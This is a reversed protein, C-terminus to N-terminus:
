PLPLWSPKEGRPLSALRDAWYSTLEKLVEGRLREVNKPAGAATAVAWPIDIDKVCLAWHLFTDSGLWVRETESWLARGQVARRNFHFYVDVALRVANKLPLSSAHRRISRQRGTSVRRPRPNAQATIM